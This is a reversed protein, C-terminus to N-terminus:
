VVGRGRIETPEVADETQSSAKFRMEATDLESERFWFTRGGTKVEYITIYVGYPSRVTKEKM